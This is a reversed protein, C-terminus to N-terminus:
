DNQPQASSDLNQTMRFSYTSDKSDLNWCILVSDINKLESHCLIDHQAFFMQMLSLIEFLLFRLSGLLSAIFIM